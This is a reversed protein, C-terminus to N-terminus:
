PARLHAVAEAFKKADRGPTFRVTTANPYHDIAARRLNFDGLGLNLRLQIPATWTLAREYRCAIFGISTLNKGPNKLTL